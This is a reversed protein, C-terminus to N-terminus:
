QLPQPDSLGGQSEDTLVWKLDLYAEVVAEPILILYGDENNILLLAEYVALDPLYSVWEYPRCFEPHGPDKNEWLDSLLGCSGIFAWDPGTIDDSNEVLILNPPIGTDESLQDYRTTIHIKLPSAPLADLHSRHTIVQMSVETKKNM